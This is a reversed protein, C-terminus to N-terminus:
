GNNLYYLLNRNQVDMHIWDRKKGILRKVADATGGRGGTYSRNRAAVVIDSHDVVLKMADAYAQESRTTYPQKLETFAKSKLYEYRLKEEDHFDVEYESFPTIVKLPISLSLAAEAFISDAGQALASFAIINKDESRIKQLLTISSDYVFRATGPDDFFRHGVIGVILAM